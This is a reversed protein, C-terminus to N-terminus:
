SEVQVIERCLSELETSLSLDVGDIVELLLLSEKAYVLAFDDGRDIERLNDIRDILKVVKALKSIGAIRERDRRKREARNVGYDRPVNTLEVVFVAVRSGFQSEIDVFSLGCDEVTDHLFAAAVLEDTALDHTAVRGAVRIPHTIYPMGNYKRFQGCHCKAAFRAAEVILGM